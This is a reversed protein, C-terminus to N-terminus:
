NRSKFQLLDRITRSGRGVYGHVISVQRHVCYFASNLILPSIVNLIQIDTVIGVVGGSNDPKLPPTRIRLLVEM